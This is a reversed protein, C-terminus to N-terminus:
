CLNMQEGPFPLCGKFTDCLQWTAKVGVKVVTQASLPPAGGCM